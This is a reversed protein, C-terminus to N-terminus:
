PILVGKHGGLATGQRSSAEQSGGEVTGMWLSQGLQFSPRPFMKEASIKYKGKGGPLMLCLKASDNDSLNRNTSTEVQFYSGEAELLSGERYLKQSAGESYPVKSNRHFRQPPPTPPSLSVCM